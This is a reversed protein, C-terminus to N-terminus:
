ETVAGEIRLAFSDGHHFDPKGAPHKLAWYSLRGEEDEIVASLALALRARPYTVSLRSLPIAADLELAQDTRRVAIRPNLTEDILAEGKRYKEFNYVAWEGSPAFNFEHYGPAGERAIFCECCTHQWLQHAVRLPQAPPLRVRALEGEALYTLALSGDQERRVCATVSHVPGSRNEPHPVLRVAHDVPAPMAAFDLIPTDDERLRPGMSLRWPLHRVPHIGTEVLIVNGQLAALFEHLAHSDLGSVDVSQAQEARGAM